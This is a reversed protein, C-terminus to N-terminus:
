ARLVVWKQKELNLDTDKSAKFVTRIIELDNTASTM